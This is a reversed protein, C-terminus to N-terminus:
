KWLKKNSSNSESPFIHIIKNKLFYKIYDVLIAFAAVVIVVVDVFIFYLLNLILNKLNNLEVCELSYLSSLYVFFFMIWISDFTIQIILELFSFSNFLFIYKPNNRLSKKKFEEFM